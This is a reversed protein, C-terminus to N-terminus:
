PCFILNAFFGHVSIELIYAVTSFHLKKTWSKYVIYLKLDLNLSQMINLISFHQGYIGWRWRYM